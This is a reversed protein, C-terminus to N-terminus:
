AFPLSEEDQVSILRICWHVYNCTIVICWCWSLPLRCTSGTGREDYPYATSPATGCGFIVAVCLLQLDIRAAEQEACHQCKDEELNTIRLKSPVPWKLLNDL